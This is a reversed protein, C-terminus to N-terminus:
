SPVNCIDCVLGAALVDSFSTHGATFVNLNSQTSMEIWWVFIIFIQRCILVGKIRM